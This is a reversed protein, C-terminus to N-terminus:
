INVMFIMEKLLAEDMVLSIFEVKIEMLFQMAGLLFLGM